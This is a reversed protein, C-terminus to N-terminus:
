VYHSMDYNIVASSPSLTKIRAIYEQLREIMSERERESYKRETINRSCVAVMTAVGQKDLVPYVSNELWVGERHSEFKMPKCASMVEDIWRTRSTAVLSPLFDYAVAGALKARDVGLREATTENVALFVGKPDILFMADDTANLLALIMRERTHVEEETKKRDTIDRVYEIAGLVTQSHPDILPFSYLDLWGTTTGEPGTKPVVEFSVNGTALTKRTPCPDCPKQRGHYAQYCKKGVLPLAHVYWFEMAANVRIINMDHDLVSIGDQISSFVNDLFRESERLLQESQIRDAIEKQLKHNASRLRATRKEILKELQEQQRSFEQEAVKRETVDLIIGQYHTVNRKTDVIAMTRDEIWRIDGSRTILRYEQSFERIGEKEYDRIEAELRPVDDPHTVGVWSVRGSMFDDDTYGFQKVSKSVYEVPWGDAVKWLFVVAPSRDILAQFGKLQRRAKKLERLAKNLVRSSYEGEQNRDHKAM